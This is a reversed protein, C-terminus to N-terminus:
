QIGLQRALLRGDFRVESQNVTVVGYGDINVLAQLQGVYGTMRSGPLGTTEALRSMTIVNSGQAQLVSLLIRVEDRTLRVRSTRLYELADVIRDVWSADPETEAPPDFLSPTEITPLVVAKPATLAISVPEQHHWWTPAPFTVTTWGEPMEDITLVALPILM